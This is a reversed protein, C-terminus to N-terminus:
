KTYYRALTNLVGANYSPDILRKDRILLNNARYYSYPTNLKLDYLSESDLRRYYEVSLEMSIYSHYFSKLAELAVKPGQTIAIYFLDKLVKVIYDRHLAISEEGLGKIDLLEVRSIPDYSYFFEKNRGFRYYSRYVGKKIFKVHPGVDIYDREINFENFICYVADNNISLVNTENLSLIDFLRKRAETIGEKLINSVGNVKLQMLGIAVERSHKDMAYYRNYDKRNIVGKDLLISINAKTIDYEVIHTDLIFDIPASYRVREWLHEYKAM